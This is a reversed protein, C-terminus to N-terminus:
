KETGFIAIEPTLLRSAVKCRLTKVNLTKTKAEGNLGRQKSTKTSAQSRLWTAM